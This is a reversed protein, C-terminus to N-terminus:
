LKYTILIYITHTFIHYLLVYSKALCFTKHTRRLNAKGTLCKHFICSLAVRWIGTMHEVCPDKRLYSVPSVTPLWYCFGNTCWKFSSVEGIEWVWGKCNIGCVYKRKTQNYNPSPFRFSFLSPLSLSFLPFLFNTEKSTSPYLFSHFSNGIYFKNPKYLSPFHHIHM